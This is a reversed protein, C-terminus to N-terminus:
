PRVHWSLSRFRNFICDGKSKKAKQKHSSGYGPKELRGLVCGSSIKNPMMFSGLFLVGNQLAVLWGASKLVGDFQPPVAPMSWISGGVVCCGECDERWLYARSMPPTVPSCGCAGAFRAMRSPSTAAQQLNLDAVVFRLVVLLLVHRHRHLSSALQFFLFSLWAGWVTGKPM